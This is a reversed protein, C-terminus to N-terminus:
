KSSKRRSAFFLGAAAVMIICGGITFITTGIGGTSPLNALTTNKITTAENGEAPAPRVEIIKGSDDKVYEATYTSTAKGDILITYDSLTGDTNYNATIQVKHVENNLSYGM